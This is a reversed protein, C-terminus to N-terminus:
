MKKPSILNIDSLIPASLKTKNEQATKLNYGIDPLHYYKGAVGLASRILMTDHLAKSHRRTRRVIIEDIGSIGSLLLAYGVGCHHYTALYIDLVTSSSSLM